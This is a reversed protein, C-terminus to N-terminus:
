MKVANSRITAFKNSYYASIGINKNVKTFSLTIILQVLIRFHNLPSM